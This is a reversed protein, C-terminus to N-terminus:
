PAPWPPALASPKPLGGQPRADSVNIHNVDGCAGNGFLVVLNTTTVRRLGRELYLPYDASYATGGITDLHLPFCALAALAQKDDQRHDDLGAIAHGGARGAFM